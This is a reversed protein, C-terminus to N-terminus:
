FDYRRSWRQLLNVATLLSLSLILLVIAVATAGSYDFEELRQFVYVTSVLTEHPINGSIILIIGFEGIARALALTFGTLIAPLLLPFIVRRFTQWSSAGLTYASEEVEPELEVLAPQVTRVVFPLTSFIQAMLVGVVSSTLNVEEVGFQQFFNGLATGPDFLQGIAGGPAYLSVLTIGAVVGPMAFPMDVLGDALRRGPFEYRVLIWALILGFFSNITAALLSTVFTLKYADLAVDSVIVQWLEPLSRKSAQWVLGAPPLLIFFSLYTFVLGRILNQSLNSQQKGPSRVGNLM